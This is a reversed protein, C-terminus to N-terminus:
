RFLDENEGRRAPKPVGLLEANLVLIERAHRQPGSAHFVATAVGPLRSSERCQM